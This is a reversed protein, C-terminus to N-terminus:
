PSSRVSAAYVLAANAFGSVKRSTTILTFSDGSKANFVELMVNGTPTNASNPMSQKLTGTGTSIALIEANANEGEYYLRAYGEIMSSTYQVEEIQVICVGATSNAFRLDNSSILVTNANTTETFYGVAKSIALEGSDGILQVDILNAPM